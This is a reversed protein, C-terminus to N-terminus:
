QTPMSPVVWTKKFRKSVDVWDAAGMAMRRELVMELPFEGVGKELVEIKNSAKITKSWYKREGRKVKKEHKGGLRIKVERNSKIYLYAGREEEHGLARIELADILVPAYRKEEPPSAWRVIIITNTVNGATAAELSTITSAMTNVGRALGDMPNSLTGGTAAGLAVLGVKDMTSLQPRNRKEREKEKAIYAQFEQREREEKQRAAAENDTYLTFMPLQLVHAYRQLHQMQQAEAPSLTNTNPLSSPTQNTTQFGHQQHYSGQSSLGQFQQSQMKRQSQFPISFPKFHTKPIHEGFPNPSLYGSIGDFSCRTIMLICALKPLKYRIVSGPDSELIGICSLFGM